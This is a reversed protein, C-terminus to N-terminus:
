PHRRHAALRGSAAPQRLFDDFPMTDPLVIVDKDMVDEARRVLFMNAHLAKPIFHRRASWSSRTSTRARAAHAPVGISIAVAVIMPMVIGYDLTMEFIMTVATM